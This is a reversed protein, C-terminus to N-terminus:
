YYCDPCWHNENIRDMNIFFEGHNNCLFPFLIRSFIIQEKRPKNLEENIKKTFEAESFKFRAGRKDAEKVYDQYNISRSIRSCSPCIARYLKRYPVNFKKHDPDKCSLEFSMNEITKGNLASEIFTSLPIEMNLGLNKVIDRYTNWKKVV